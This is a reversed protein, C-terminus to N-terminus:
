TDTVGPWALERWAPPEGPSTGRPERVARPGFTEARPESKIGEDSRGATGSPSAGVSNARRGEWGGPQTPGGPGGFGPDRIRQISRLCGPGPEPVPNPPNIKFM